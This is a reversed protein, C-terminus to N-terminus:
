QGPQHEDSRLQVVATTVQDLGFERHPNIAPDTSDILRVRCSRRAGHQERENHRGKGNTNRVVPLLPKPLLPALGYM